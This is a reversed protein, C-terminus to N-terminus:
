NKLLEVVEDDNLQPFRDYFQSVALFTEPVLLCMIEDFETELKKLTDPPAVPVALILVKAGHRRLYKAAAIITLGTAVGDDVVICTKNKILKEPKGVGYKKMRTNIEEKLRSAEKKIYSEDAEFHATESLYVEGDADVAGIGYEPNFPHGLKKVVVVGLPLDLARAIEKAVEVGGRPVGIVVVDKSGKYKKLKEALKIGADKRDLFVM